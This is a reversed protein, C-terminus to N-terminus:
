EQKEQKGVLGEKEETGKAELSKLYKKRSSLMYKYLFVMGLIISGQIFRVIYVYTDPITESNIKLFDNIIMMESYVGLPYLVIFSNYRLFGTLLNNKFIYYLYRNVDAIAWFIVVAAFRLRHSEPSIFALAVINRGLIQFFAGVISGKSKGLLILLIDCIQFLQVGRLIYVLTTIDSGLFANRDAFLPVGVSILLYSWVALSAVNVAKDM